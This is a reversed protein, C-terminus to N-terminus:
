AHEIYRDPIGLTLVPVSLGAAALSELVASGAGGQIANDELTVLVDHQRALQAVLGHDLPKVFRMDAVTADLAEAAQLAQSLPAGFALLAVRQGAVPNGQRRIIGKGLALVQMEADPVVGTGSGRPYRVAAPGEHIYGTYLMLDSSCVDSSWDRSFRTHRRRSSF